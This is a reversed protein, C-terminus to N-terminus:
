PQGGNVGIVLSDACATLATTYASSRGQLGARGTLVATVAARVQVLNVLAAAAVDEGASNRVGGAAAAPKVETDTGDEGLEDPENGALGAHQAHQAHETFQPEQPSQQYAESAPSPAMHHALAPHPPAAQEM